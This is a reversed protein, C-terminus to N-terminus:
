TKTLLAIVEVHYTQPFQDLPQVKKLTYKKSLEKIDRALTTPNCSVYLIKETGLELLHEITKPMLGARPPDVLVLTPKEPIKKIVKAVDGCLFEM